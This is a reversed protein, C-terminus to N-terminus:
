KQQRFQSPTTNFEKSFSKTFYNPDNFGCDYAIATISKNTNKLQNAAAELRKNKIYQGPSVGLHKKFKRKFTPTSMHSLSALEDLSLDEFLNADM